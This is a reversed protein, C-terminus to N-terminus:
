GAICRALEARSAVGLKRFVSQLHNAVTRSSGGRSGAIEKNTAGALVLEAIEREASTLEPCVSSAPPLEIVLWEEGLMKGSFCSVSVPTLASLDAPAVSAAEEVIRGM